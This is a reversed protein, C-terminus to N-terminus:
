AYAEVIGRVYGDFCYIKVIKYRYYTTAVVGFAGGSAISWANLALGAGSNMQPIAGGGFTFTVAPTSIGASGRDIFFVFERGTTDSAIDIVTAGAPQVLFQEKTTTAPNVSTTATITQSGRIIGATTQIGTFPTTGDVLVATDLADVATKLDADIDEFVANLIDEWTGTDAGPEPLQWSFNDTVPGAM